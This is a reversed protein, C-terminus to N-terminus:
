TTPRTPTSSARFEASNLSGSSDADAAEFNAKAVAENEASLGEAAVPASALAVGSSLLLASLTKAGVRRIIPEIM